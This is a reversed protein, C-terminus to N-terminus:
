NQLTLLVKKFDSLEIIREFYILKDINGMSLTCTDDLFNIILSKYVSRLSNDEYAKVMKKLIGEKENLIEYYEKYDLIEKLTNKEEFKEIIANNKLIFYFKFMEEFNFFVFNHCNNEEYKLSVYFYENSKKISFRKVNKLIILNRLNCDEVREDIDKLIYFFISKNFVRIYSKDEISFKVNNEIEKFDEFEFNSYYFCTIIKKSNKNIKQIRTLNDLIISDLKTVNLKTFRIKNQFIEITEYMKEVKFSNIKKFNEPLYKKKELEYYILEPEVKKLKTDYESYYFNYDRNKGRFLNFIEKSGNFKYRNPYDKRNFDEQLTIEDIFNFNYEGEEYYDSIFKFKEPLYNAYVKSDSEIKFLNEKNDLKNGILFKNIFKILEYNIPSVCHFLIQIIRFGLPNRLLYKQFDEIKLSSKGHFCRHLILYIRYKLTLFTELNYNKAKILIYIIIDKIINLIGMLSVTNENDKKFMNFLYKITQEKDKIIYSNFLIFFCELFIKKRKVRHNENNIFSLFNKALSEPLELMEYFRKDNISYSNKELFADYFLDLYVYYANVYSLNTSNEKVKISEM